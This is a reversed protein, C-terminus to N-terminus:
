TDPTARYRELLHEILAFDPRFALYDKLKQCGTLISGYLKVWTFVPGMKM